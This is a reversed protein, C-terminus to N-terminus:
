KNHIHKLNINIKGVLYFVMQNANYFNMINMYIHSEVDYEATLGKFQFFFYQSMHEWSRTTVTTTYNIVVLTAVNNIVVAGAEECNTLVPDRLNGLSLPSM